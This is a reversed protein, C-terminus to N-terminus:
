PLAFLLNEAYSCGKMGFFKSFFVFNEVVEFPNQMWM